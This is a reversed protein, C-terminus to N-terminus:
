EEQITGGIAGRLRVPEAETNQVLAVGAIAPTVALNGGLIFLCGGAGIPIAGGPPVFPGPSAATRINEFYFTLPREPLLLVFDGADIPAASLLPVPLPLQTTVDIASVEILTDFQEVRAVTRRLQLGGETGRAPLSDILVQLISRIDVQM